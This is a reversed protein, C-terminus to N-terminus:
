KAICNCLVWDCTDISTVFMLIRTHWRLMVLIGLWLCGGLLIPSQLVLLELSVSLEETDLLLM